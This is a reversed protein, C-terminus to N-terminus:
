AQICKTQRNAILEGILMQITCVLEILILTINAPIISSCVESLENLNAGSMCSVNRSNVIGGASGNAEDSIDSKEGRM